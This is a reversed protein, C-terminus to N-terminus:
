NGVRLHQLPQLHGSNCFRMLHLHRSVLIMCCNSSHNIENLLVEDVQLSTPRNTVVNIIINAMLAASLSSDFKESKISSLRMLIPSADEVVDQSSLRTWYRFRYREMKRSVQVIGCAVDDLLGDINGDMTSVLKLVNSAQSRFVVITAYGNGYLLLLDSGFHRSFTSSYNGLVNHLEISNWLHLRYKAIDLWCRSHKM